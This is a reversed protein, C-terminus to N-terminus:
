SWYFSVSKIYYHIWHHQEHMVLCFYIVFGICYLGKALSCVCHWLREDPPVAFGEWRSTSFDLLWCYRYVCVIVRKLLIFLQKIYVTVLLFVPTMLSVFIICKLYVHKAWFVNYKILIEMHQLIFINTNRYIRIPLILNVPMGKLLYSRPTAISGSFTM